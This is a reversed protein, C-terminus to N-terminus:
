DPRKDSEEEAEDIAQVRLWRALAADYERDTALWIATRLAVRGYALPLPENTKYSEAPEGPIRHTSDREPGGLRLDVDLMRSDDRSQDVLSGDSALLQVAAREVVQYSLFYPAPDLKSLAQTSRALEEALSA